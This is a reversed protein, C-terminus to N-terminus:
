SNLITSSKAVPHCFPVILLRIQLAPAQERRKYHASLGLDYLKKIWVKFCFPCTQEYLRGWRPLPVAQPPHPSRGGFLLGNGRLCGNWKAAKEKLCFALSFAGFLFATDTPTGGWVGGGVRKSFLNPDLFKLVFYATRSILMGLSFPSRKRHILLDNASQCGM